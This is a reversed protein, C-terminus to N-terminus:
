GCEVRAIHGNPIIFRAGIDLCELDGFKGDSTGFKNCALLPEDRCRIIHAETDVIVIGHLFNFFKLGMGIINAIDLNM